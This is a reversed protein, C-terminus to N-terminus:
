FIPRRQIRPGACVFVSVSFDVLGSYAQFLNLIFCPFFGLMRITKRHRIQMEDTDVLFQRFRTEMEFQSSKLISRPQSLTTSTDASFSHISHFDEPADTEEDATTTAIFDGASILTYTLNTSDSHSRRPYLLPMSLQGEDRTPQDYGSYPPYFISSKRKVEVETSATKTTVTVLSTPSPSTSTKAVAEKTMKSTMMQTYSHVHAYARNLLIIHVLM